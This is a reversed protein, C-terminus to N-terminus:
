KKAMLQFYEMITVYHVRDEYTPMCLDLASFTEPHPHAIAIGRGKAEAIKVLHELENCIEEANLVNDLFIHRRASKVKWTRAIELGVSASTTLSDIFVMNKGAVLGLLFAMSQGDATFRSGMHNNLGIAHPVAALAAAFKMEQVAPSDSVYLAGPGPNSGQGIPELPLHLFVQKGSVFAFKELKGTFPAFPLFSYTMAFPLNLFEMGMVEDYGMDDIIIAVKPLEARTMVGKEAAEPIMRLQGEAMEDIPLGNGPVSPPDPEEFVVAAGSTPPLEGAVV